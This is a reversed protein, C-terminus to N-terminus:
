LLNVCLFSFLVNWVGRAQQKGPVNATIFMSTFINVTLLVTTIAIAPAYNPELHNESFLDVLGGMIVGMLGWGLAGFLRQQGYKNHDKNLVALCMTDALSSSCDMAVFILILCITNLWFPLMALSETFSREQMQKEDFCAEVCEPYAVAQCNVISHLWLDNSELESTIICRGVDSINIKFKMLTDGDNSNLKLAKQQIIEESLCKLECNNIKESVSFSMNVRSFCSSLSDRNEFCIVSQIKEKSSSRTKPMSPLFFLSLFSAALLVCLLLLLAKHLKWKDAMFGFFINLVASILTNLTYIFGVGQPSIGRQIMVPAAFPLFGE